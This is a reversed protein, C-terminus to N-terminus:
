FHMIKAFELLFFIMIRNKRHLTPVTIATFDMFIILLASIAARLQSKESASSILEGVIVPNNMPGLRSITVGHLVEATSIVCFIFM